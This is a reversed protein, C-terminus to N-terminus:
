LSSKNFENKYHHNIDFWVGECKHAYNNPCPMRIHFIVITSGNFSLAVRILEVLLRM